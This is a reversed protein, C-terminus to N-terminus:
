TSNKMCPENLHFAQVRENVSTLRIFDTEKGKQYRERESTLLAAAKQRFNNFFCEYRSFCVM